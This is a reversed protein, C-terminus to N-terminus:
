QQWIELGAVPASPIGTDVKGNGKPSSGNIILSSGAFHVLQLQTSTAFTSFAWVESRSPIAYSICTMTPYGSCSTGSGTGSAQTAGYAIITNTSVNKIAVSSSTAESIAWGKIIYSGAPLTVTSSGTNLSAGTIGNYTTTNLLRLPNAAVQTGGVYKEEFWAMKILGDGGGGGGGTAGSSYTVERMIQQKTKWRIFDDYYNAVDTNFFAEVFTNDNDCNEVDEGGSCAVIPTVTGLYNTAGKSNAGHSVIVYAVVNAYTASNAQHIRNAGADEVRIVDAQTSAYPAFLANTRALNKVVVYKIRTNWSDFMYEDPLNLTRTPVIGIRIDENATAGSVDVVSGLPTISSALISCDTAVGYNATAPADTIRAPCPIYGNQSYFTDIAKQIADLKLNMQNTSNTQQITPVLGVISGLIISFILIVISLEIITFGKSNSKGVLDM